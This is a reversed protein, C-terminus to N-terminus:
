SQKQHDPEDSPKRLRAAEAVHPAPPAFRLRSFLAALRPLNMRALENVRALACVTFREASCSNPRSDMRDPQSDRFMRMAAGLASATEAASLRMVEARRQCYQQYARDFEHFRLSAFSVITITAIAPVMQPLGQWSVLGWSVVFFASIIALSREDIARPERGSFDLFEEYKRSWALDIQEYIRAIIACKAYENTM